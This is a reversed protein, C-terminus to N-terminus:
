QDNILMETLNAFVLNNQSAGYDVRTLSGYDIRLQRYWALPIKMAVAFSVRIPGVHSVVLITKGSHGRVFAEVAASVRGRLAEITEGGEPTYHVPDQRWLQFDDPHNRAIEDFTLGDWVGFRRERLDAVEVIPVEVINAAEDATMRTRRSPSSFIVDVAQAKLLKAASKAQALGAANLAPDERDDCYIRDTPFDTKGHRLYIVRTTSEKERM